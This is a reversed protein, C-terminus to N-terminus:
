VQGIICGRSKHHLVPERWPSIASPKEDAPTRNVAFASASSSILAAASIALRPQERQSHEAQIKLIHKTLQDYADNEVITERSQSFKPTVQIPTFQLNRLLALIKVQEASKLHKELADAVQILQAKFNEAAEINYKDDDLFLMSEPPDNINDTIMKLATLLLSLNKDNLYIQGEYDEAFGPIIPFIADYVM